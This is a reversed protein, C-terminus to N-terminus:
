ALVCVLTALGDTTRHRGDLRDEEINTVRESRRHERRRRDPENPQVQEGIHRRQEAGQDIPAKPEADDRVGAIHIARAHVLNEVIGADPVEEIGGQPEVALIDPQFLIRGLYKAKGGLPGTQCAHRLRAQEDALFRRLTTKCDIGAQPGTRMRKQHVLDEVILGKAEDPDRSRRGCRGRRKAGRQPGLWENSEMNRALIAVDDICHGTLSRGSGQHVHLELHIEEAIGILRCSRIEIKQPVINGNLGAKQGRATFGCPEESLRLCGSQQDSRTGVAHDDRQGVSM